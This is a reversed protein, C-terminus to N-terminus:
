RRPSMSQSLADGELLCIGRSRIDEGDGIVDVLRHLRDGGVVPWM